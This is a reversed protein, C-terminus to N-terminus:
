KKKKKGPEFRKFLETDFHNSKAIELVKKYLRIDGIPNDRVLDVKIFPYGFKEILLDWYYHTPNRDPEQGRKKEQFQASKIFSGWKLNMENALRTLGLEFRQVLVWKDKLIAYRSFFQDLFNKKLAETEIVVFYSQMHHMYEHNDTMSWVAYNKEMKKFIPSLDTIPGIVSDNALVIRQSEKQLSMLGLYWSGFDYGINERWIFRVIYPQIRKLHDEPYDPATSVVIIKFGLKQLQELYYVMYDAIEPRISYSAFLVAEQGEEESINGQFVKKTTKKIKARTHSKMLILFGPPVKAQVIRYFRERVLSIYILTKYVISEYFLFHLYGPLRNFRIKEQSLVEAVDRVSSPFFVNEMFKGLKGRSLLFFLRLYIGQQEKRIHFVRASIRKRAEVELRNRQLERYVPLLSGAELASFHFRDQLRYKTFGTEALFFVPIYELIENVIKSFNEEPIGEMFEQFDGWRAELWEIFIEFFPLNWLMGKLQLGTSYEEWKGTGGVFAKNIESVYDYNDEVSLFEFYDKVAPFEITLFPDVAYLELRAEPSKLDKHIASWKQRGPKKFFNKPFLCHIADKDSALFDRDSILGQIIEFNSKKWLSIIAKQEDM